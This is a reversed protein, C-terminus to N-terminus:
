GGASNTGGQKHEMYSRQSNTANEAGLFVTTFDARRNVNSNQSVSTFTHITTGGYKVRLTFTSAAGSNNLQDALMRLILLTNTGLTNAPVTASFLTQETADNSIESDGIASLLLKSVM